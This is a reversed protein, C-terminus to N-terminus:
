QPMKLSSDSCMHECFFHSTFFIAPSEGRGGV